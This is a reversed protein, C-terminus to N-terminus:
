RSESFDKEKVVFDQNVIIEHAISLKSVENVAKRDETSLDVSQSVPLFDCSDEFSSGM